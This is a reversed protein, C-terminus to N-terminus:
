KTSLELEILEAVGPIVANALEKIEHLANAVAYSRFERIMDTDNINDGVTIIDGYSAGFEELLGYLGQAKNMGAPVIDICRGNQLPNLQESFRERVIATVRAAEDNNPLITSVQNFYPLEPLVGLRFEGDRLEEGDARVTLPPEANIYGVPCGLEFLLELLPVAIKGDCRTERLVTGDSRCITAGNNALLFDCEFKEHRVISLLAHIGRGSVIGFLNGEKRWRSIAERSADSVGGYNLTGDYDSAIIKM